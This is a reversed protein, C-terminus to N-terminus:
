SLTYFVMCCLVPYLFCEVTRWRYNTNYLMSSSYEDKYSSGKSTVLPRAPSISITPGGVVNQALVTIRLEQKFLSCIIKISFFGCVYIVPFYRVKVFRMSHSLYRFIKLLFVSLGGFLLYCFNPIIFYTLIGVESNRGDKPPEITYRILASPYLTKHVNTGGILSVASYRPFQSFHDPEDLLTFLFFIHIKTYPPRFLLTM